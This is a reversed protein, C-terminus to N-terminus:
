GCWYRQCHLVFQHGPSSFLTSTSMNIAQCLFVFFLEQDKYIIETNKVVM